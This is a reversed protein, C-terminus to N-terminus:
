NWAGGGEGGGAGGGGGGGGSGGRNGDDENADAVRTARTPKPPTTRKPASTASSTRILKALDDDSLSASNRRLSKLLTDSIFGNSPAGIEAQYKRIASRTGATIVSDAPERLYGMARLRGEVEARQEVSLQTDATPWKNSTFSLDEIGLPSCATVAGFVCIIAIRKM